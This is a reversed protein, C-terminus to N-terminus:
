ISQRSTTLTPTKDVEPSGNEFIFSLKQNATLSKKFHGASNGPDEPTLVM